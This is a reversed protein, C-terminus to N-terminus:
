RKVFRVVRSKDKDTYISIAYVGAGLKEVHQKIKNTGAAISIKERQITSGKADTIVIEATSNQKSIIKLTFIGDPVPNPEISVIDISRNVLVVVDSYTVKGDINIIKLRYYNAGELPNADIYNFNQL